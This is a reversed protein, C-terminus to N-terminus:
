PAAVAQVPQSLPVVPPAQAGVTVPAGGRLYPEIVARHQWDLKWGDEIAVVTYQGAPVDNLSFSGDSDSQDRRVLAPYATRAAPVLVIMAGSLGKGNKKAIGQVRTQASSLTVTVQVPRDRVVIKNGATVVGGISTAVVSLTQRSSGAALNWTGPPVANMEFRGKNATAQAPPDGEESALVLAIDDPPPGGGAMVVTGSLALMPAGASPDLDVESTANVNLRRPPDGLEVEYAGPAMGGIDWTGTAPGEAIESIQSGITNGFVKQHLALRPRGRPWGTLPVTFRVAPVTHLNIDAQVRNGWELTIPTSANEDITSDYYTIPYAVDLASQDQSSQNQAGARFRSPHQAFWPEGKVAIYYEGASLDSFEYAGTDDTQTGAIQQVHGNNEGAVARKFLMVQASEVPDGSDGTVVGRLVAAPPLRFLLNATDQGDGTVIASNFNDHEDFFSTRYGRRAASLPYKGASLGTFSFNGEADTITSAEVKYDESTLVSVIARPVPDNTISDVVRGAIRYGAPQTQAPLTQALPTVACLLVAAVLPLRM